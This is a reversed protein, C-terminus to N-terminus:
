RSRGRCGLVFRSSLPLLPWMEALWELLLSKLILRVRLTTRCLLVAHAVRAVLLALDLAVIAAQSAM